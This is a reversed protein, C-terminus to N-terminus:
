LHKAQMCIWFSGSPPFPRRPAKWGTTPCSMPPSIKSETSVFITKESSKESFVTELKLGMSIEFYEKLDEVANKLVVGANECCAIKWESTVAVCNDGVKKDPNYRNPKHVQELKKVFEFHKEM